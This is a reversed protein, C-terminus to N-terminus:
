TAIFAILVPQVGATPGVNGVRASLLLAVAAALAGSVAFASAIVRDARVGLLRSMTFDEAAARMDLGVDTRRIFLTLVGLLAFSAVITVLDLQNLRLGYVEFPTTDLPLVIGVPRAGSL